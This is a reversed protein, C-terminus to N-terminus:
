WHPWDSHFPDDSHEGHLLGAMSSVHGIAQIAYDVSASLDHSPLSHSCDSPCLGTPNHVRHISDTINVPLARTKELTMERDKSRKPEKSRIMPGEDENWLHKTEQTWTRRNWIDRITKPSVSYREALSCANFRSTETPGANQSRCEEFNPKQMRRLKYIEVAQNENLLARPRFRALNNTLLLPRGDDRM